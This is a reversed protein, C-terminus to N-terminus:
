EIDDFSAHRVESFKLSFGHGLPVCHICFADQSTKLSLLMLTFLLSIELQLKKLFNLAGQM